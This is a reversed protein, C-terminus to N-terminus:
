NANPSILRRHIAPKRSPENIKSISSAWHNNKNKEIPMKRYLGAIRLM